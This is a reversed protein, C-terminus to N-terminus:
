SLSVTHSISVTPELMRAVSCYKAMSLEVARELKHVDLEGSARFHLRVHTFVAPVADARDGEVDIELGQIPQRMRGLIHLVDLASCGALAALVAEMPRFHEDSGGLAASGELHISTGAANTARFAAPGQQKLTVKM